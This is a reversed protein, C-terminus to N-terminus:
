ATVVLLYPNPSGGSGQSPVGGTGCLHVAKTFKYANKASTTYGTKSSLDIGLYQAISVGNSWTISSGYDATVGSNAVFPACFQPNTITPVSSAESVIAGGNFRYPRAGYQISDTTCYGKVCTSFVDKYKGYIWQSSFYKKWTSTSPQQPFDITMTSDIGNTGSMTWGGVAGTLSVGVGLESTAGSIYQFDGTAGTTTSYLQGVIDNVVYSSMLTSVISNSKAIAAESAVATSSTAGLKLVPSANAEEPEWWETAHGKLDSAVFRLNQSGGTVVGDITFNGAKDTTATGVSTASYSDGVSMSALFKADPEAFVQVVSGPSERGDSEVVRGTAHVKREGASTAGATVVSSFATLLVVCALLSTKRITV